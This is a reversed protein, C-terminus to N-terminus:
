RSEVRNRFAHIFRLGDVELHGRNSCAGCAEVKTDLRTAKTRRLVIARSDIDILRAAMAEQRALCTSNDPGCILDIAPTGSKVRNDTESRNHQFLGIESKQV